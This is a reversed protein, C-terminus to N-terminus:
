KIEYYCVIAWRFSNMWQVVVFTSYWSCARELLARTAAGTKRTNVSVFRSQDLENGRGNNREFPTWGGQSDQLDIEGM